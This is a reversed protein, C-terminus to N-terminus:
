ISGATHGSIEPNELLKKLSVGQTYKPIEIGTLDCLTPFVDLTEVIADTNAGQTEYGSLSNNFTFTIIGRVFQTKGLNRTRWTGVM